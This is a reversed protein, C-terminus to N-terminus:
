STKGEQRHCGGIIRPAENIENLLQEIREHNPVEAAKDRAAQDQLESFIELNAECKVLSELKRDVENCLALMKRAFLIERQKPSKRRFVISILKDKDATLDEVM